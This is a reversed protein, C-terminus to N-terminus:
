RGVTAGADSGDTSADFALEGEVIPLEIEGIVDSGTHVTVEAPAGTSVLWPHGAGITLMIHSGAPLVEALPVTRMEMVGPEGVPFPEGQELHGRHYLDSMAHRHETVSVSGAGPCSPREDGTWLYAAINEDPHTSTATFNM